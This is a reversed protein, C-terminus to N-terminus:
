CLRFSVSLEQLLILNSRRPPPFLNVTAPCRPCSWPIYVSESAKMCHISGLRRMHPLARQYSDMLHPRAMPSLRLAQRLVGDSPVPQLPHTALFSIVFFHRERLPLAASSPLHHVDLDHMDMSCVTPTARRRWRCPWWHLAGM